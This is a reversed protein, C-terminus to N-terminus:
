STGDEPITDPMRRVRRARRWDRAAEAANPGRARRSARAAGLEEATPWRGGIAGPGNWGVRAESAAQCTGSQNRFAFNPIQACQPGCDETSAPSQYARFMYM